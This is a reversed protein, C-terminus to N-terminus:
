LSRTGKMELARSLNVLEAVDADLGDRDPVAIPAATADVPDGNAHRDLAATLQVALPATSLGEDRVLAIYPSLRVLGDRCETFRRYFRRHVGRLNFANHWAAIPTRDLMDEPFRDHLVSWLPTLQRYIRRHHWWVALAAVRMRASRYGLGLLFIYIGGLTASFGVSFVVIAPVRRGIMAGATDAVFITLGLWLCGSGAAMVMMGQRLWADLGRRAYRCSVVASVAFAIGTYSYFALYFLMIPTAGHPPIPFGVPQRAALVRSEPPILQATVVMVIITVALVPVQFLVRRRAEDAAYVTTLLFCLLSFDALIGLLSQIEMATMADGVLLGRGARGAIEFPLSVAWCLVLAALAQLPVVKPARLVQPVLWLMLLGITVGRIIQAFQPIVAM